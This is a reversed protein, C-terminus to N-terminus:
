KKLRLRLILCSIEDLIYKRIIKKLIESKAIYKSIKPSALYYYKIFLKGMFNKDLVEDRFNRFLQVDPIDYGGYCISAIFCGEFKSKGSKLPVVNKTRIINDIYDKSQRLTCGSAQMYEKIARTYKGSQILFILSSEDIEKKEEGPGPKELRNIYDCAASLDCSNEERYRKIAEIKRGANILAIYVADEKSEM